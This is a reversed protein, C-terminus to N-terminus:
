QKLLLLLAAATALTGLAVSAAPWGQGLAGEWLIVVSPTLYTYAMVKASKLRLAAYQVLLFTVASACISLYALTIWFIPPLAAWDTAVLDPASYIMLMICGAVLMGFTFVLPPEGRNLRPVMPAYLAHAVCGFFFIVEGRGVDFALLAGVDGRFIVWLAGCGGLTLALAMRPTTIQRMLLWGFGAAMIPTLTFVAAASVPAATKLGEFMTVFYICFLGGLVAYRWPAHFQASKLGIVGQALAGIVCAAILFRVATLAAPDVMNAVKGGLSFSGAVLIAFLLMAAHGRHEQQKM